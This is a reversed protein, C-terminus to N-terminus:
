PAVPVRVRLAPGPLASGPVCQLLLLFCCSRSPDPQQYNGDEEWQCAKCLSISSTCQTPVARHSFGFSLDPIM